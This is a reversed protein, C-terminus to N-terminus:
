EGRWKVHAYVVGLELHPPTPPRVSFPPDGPQWDGPLDGRRYIYGTYEIEGDRRLIQITEVSQYMPGLRIVRTSYSDTTWMGHIRRYFWDIVDGDYDTPPDIGDRIVTYIPTPLTGRPVWILIYESPAPM